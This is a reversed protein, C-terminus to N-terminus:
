LSVGFAAAVKAAIQEQSLEPKELYPMFDAAEFPKSRKKPDRHVNAIVASVIGSRLDDRESGFPDLEYYAMWETLEQSSIRALLESVPM